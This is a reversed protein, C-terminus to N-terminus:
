NFTGDPFGILTFNTCLPLELDEIHESSARPSTRWIAGGQPPWFVLIMFNIMKGSLSLSPNGNHKERGQSWSGSGSLPQRKIAAKIVEKFTWLDNFVYHSILMKMNGSLSLSPNGNHTERGQGWSGDATLRNVTKRPRIFGHFRCLDNFVYHLIM